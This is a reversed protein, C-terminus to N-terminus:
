RTYRMKKLAAKVPNEHAVIVMTLTSLCRAKNNLFLYRWTTVMLRALITTRINKNADVALQKVTRMLVLTKIIKLKMIRDEHINSEM